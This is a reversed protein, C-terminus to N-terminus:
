NRDRLSASLVRCLQQSMLLVQVQGGLLDTLAPQAGNYPGHTMDIGAM